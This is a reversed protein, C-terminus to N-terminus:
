LSTHNCRFAHRSLFIENQHCTSSPCALVTMGPTQDGPDPPIRHSDKGSSPSAMQEATSANSTTQCNFVQIGLSLRLSRVLPCALGWEAPGQVFLFDRGLGNVPFFFSRFLPVEFPKRLRGKGMMQIHM